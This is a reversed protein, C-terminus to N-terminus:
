QCQISKFNVLLQFLRLITGKGDGGKVDFLNSIRDLDDRCWM